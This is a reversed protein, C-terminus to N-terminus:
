EQKVLTSKIFLDEIQELVEIDSAYWSDEIISGDENRMVYHIKDSFIVYESKENHLIKSIQYKGGSIEFSTDINLETGKGDLLTSLDLLDNQNTVVKINFPQVLQEIFIQQKRQNNVFVFTGGIIIIIILTFYTFKKKKNVM